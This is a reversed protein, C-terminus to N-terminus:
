YNIIYAALVAVLSLTICTRFRVVVDCNIIVLAFRVVVDCNIIVDCGHHMTYLHIADLFEEFSMFMLKEITAVIRRVNFCLKLDHCLYRSEM